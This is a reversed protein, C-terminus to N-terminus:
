ERGPVHARMRLITTEGGIAKWFNLAAKNKASVHWEFHAVEQDRFWLCIREVLQRGFGRRRYAESVYIDALLGCRLPQFLETTIDAIIGSVYGVVEGKQEVVLIRALPDSLRERIGRSYLGPGLASPRFTAADFQAHYHVMEAWMEGIREADGDVALRIM